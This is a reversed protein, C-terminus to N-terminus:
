AVKAALAVLGAPQGAGGAEDLEVQWFAHPSGSSRRGKFVDAAYVPRSVPSTAYDVTTYEETSPDATGAVGPTLGFPAQSWIRGSTSAPELQGLQGLVM